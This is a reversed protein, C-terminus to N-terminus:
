TSSPGLSAGTTRINCPSGVQFYIKKDPGLALFKWNHHTDPPLKFAETMEVPAPINDLNAEINDYRYVKNIAAVYLAGNHFLVGNPQTLKEAVIKSTRKGDKDMVAYVRGIIRTGVFVTGKDGRTMMRGGPIGHAWVEIEFGPPLKLNKLPIEEPPTMTMKPPHPFLNPDKMREPHFGGSKEQAAKQEPTLPKSAPKAESPKQQAFVGPITILFLAGSILAPLLAIRSLLSFGPRM